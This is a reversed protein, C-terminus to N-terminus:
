RVYVDTSNGFLSRALPLNNQAATLGEPPAGALHMVSIYIECCLIIGIPIIVQFSIMNIFNHFLDPFVPIISNDLYVSYNHSSEVSILCVSSQISVQSLIHFM